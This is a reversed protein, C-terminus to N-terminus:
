LIFVENHKFKQDFKYGNKILLKRCLEEKEIQSGGLTEILIVDIPISFDWSLLVEYEHGEVDLSLLDIHKIDTSKVINTLTTPKITIRSQPERISDYFNQFHESPLTNEVGSVGSYNDVFFRFVVDEEICSVINNFLLNNPRNTKLLNFKYPHPEILIGKWGLQDEFFKTNSYLIGDLAGLEIYTGNKKNKFYNANLFQDEESQSYFMQINIYKLIYSKIWNKNFYKKYINIQNELCKNYLNIDNQLLNTKQIFENADKFITEKSFEEEFPWKLDNYESIMLSGQSLIEFTRKNPDGVGNLDLAYKSEYLQKLFDNYYLYGPNYIYNYIKNYIIGRNRYYNIQSDNHEFLTGTFFIRNITNNNKVFNYNDIKEIISIEGFMIFPFPIVNSSYTKTKNYNRKFFFTIKENNLIDNPDYDYDYNDFIFVKKFNNRNIIEIERQLIDYINQKFFRTGPKADYLAIIIFLYDYNTDNIQSWDTKPKINYKNHSNNKDLETNNIFYDAEPFLINLGIDQNVGDIIAIKM